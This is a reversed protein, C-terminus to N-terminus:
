NGFLFNLFLFNVTSLFVTLAVLPMMFRRLSIGASKVAAFEYNEAFNGVAMISSLLIGIPMALPVVTLALYGIFKLVFGLDIGKGALEDFGGWLAVMVLVFLIVFFIYETSHFFFFSRQESGPLIDSLKEIM